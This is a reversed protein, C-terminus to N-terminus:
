KSWPNVYNDVSTRLEQLKKLFEQNNDIFDKGKAKIIPDLKEITFWLWGISFDWIQSEEDPNPFGRKIDDPISKYFETYEKYIETDRLLSDKRRKM